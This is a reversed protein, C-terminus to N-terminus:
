LPSNVKDDGQYLDGVKDDAVELESSETKSIVGAPAPNSDSLHYDCSNHLWQQQLDFPLNGWSVGPVVSYNGKWEGCLKTAEADTLAGESQYNETWVNGAEWSGDKGKGEEKQYSIDDWYMGERAKLKDDLEFPELNAYGGGVEQEYPFGPYPPSPHTQLLLALRIAEDQVSSFLQETESSELKLTRSQVYQVM